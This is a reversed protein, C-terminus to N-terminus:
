GIKKRGKMKIENELSEMAYEWLHEYPIIEIESTESSVELPHSKLKQFFSDTKRKVATKHFHADVIKILMKMFCNSRFSSNKQLYKYCYQNLADTRDIMRDYQKNKLLFLLQIILIAVNLGQKDKSFTPVQNLFKYVKFKKVSILKIDELDIKGIHILYNVYAEFVRWVERESETLNKFFKHKLAKSVIEYAKVYDKSHLSLLVYYNMVVYWNKCGTPVLKIAKEAAIKAEKHRNLNTNYGILKVLFTFVAINIKSALGHEFHHIADECIEIVKEYKNELEYRLCFVLYSYLYLKYSQKDKILDRLVKEGEIADELIIKNITKSHSHHAVINQYYDEAIIEANLLDLNERLMKKYYVYKKNGKGHNAYYIKLYRSLDVIVSTIEFKLANRITREALSVATKSAAKGFLISTRAMNIHCSYYAKQFSKYKPQNVDIFFLTNLLRQELHYKLQKYNSNNPDSGYLEMAAEEDTTFAETNIGDYLRQLLSSPPLNSNGIIEINQVKTKSIVHVLEKLREIM